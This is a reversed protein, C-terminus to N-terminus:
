QTVQQHAAEKLQKQLEESRGREQDDVGKHENWDDKQFFRCCVGAADVM